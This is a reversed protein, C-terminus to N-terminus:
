LWGVGAWKERSVGPLSFCHLHPLPQSRALATTARPYSAPSLSLLPPLQRARDDEGLSVESSGPSLVQM